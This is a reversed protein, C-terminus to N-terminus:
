AGPVDTIIAAQRPAARSERNIAQFLALSALLGRALFGCLRRFAAKEHTDNHLM